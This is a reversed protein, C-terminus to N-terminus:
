IWSTLFSAFSFCLPVFVFLLTFSSCVFLWLFFLFPSCNLILLVFVSLLLFILFVFSLLPLIMVFWQRDGYCWWQSCCCRMALNAGRRRRRRRRWGSLQEVHVTFLSNIWEGSNMPCCWNQGLGFHRPQTWGLGLLFSFYMETSVPGVSKQAWRSMIEERVIEAWFPHAWGM